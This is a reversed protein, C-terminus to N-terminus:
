WFETWFKRGSSPKGKINWTKSRHETAKVVPHFIPIWNWEVHPHRTEGCWKSFLSDKRWYVGKVNPPRLQTPKQRLGRSQRVARCTQKTSSQAIKTVTARRDLKLDSITVDRDDSEKKLITKAVQPRKYKWIYKLITKEIETFFRMLNKILSPMSRYVAEPSSKEYCWNQPCPSRDEYELTKLKKPTKLKERTIEEKRDPKSKLM